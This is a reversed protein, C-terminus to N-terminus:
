FDGNYFSELMVQVADPDDDPLNIVGEAAEQEFMQLEQCKVQAEGGLSKSGQAGADTAQISHILIRQLANETEIPTDEVADVTAPLETEWTGDETSQDFKEEALDKLESLVYKDASRYVAVILAIQQRYAPAGNPDTPLVFNSTYLYELLANVAMPDDEPMKITNTTAEQFRGDCAKAFFDCGSCLIFRHVKWKREGVEITLDAYKGDVFRRKARERHVALAERVAGTDEDTDSM